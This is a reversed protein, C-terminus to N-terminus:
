ARSKRAKSMKKALYRCANVGGAALIGSVAQRASSVMVRRSVARRVSKAADARSTIPVQNVSNCDWKSELPGLFHLFSLRPPQYVPIGVAKISQQVNLIHNIISSAESVPAVLVGLAALTAKKIKNQDEAFLMRLDGMYSLSCIKAYLDEETFEPPLLLLAASIAARLNVSNSNKIGFKDVLIHVPKQLRGSLYFRQWNLLDQVLDHMRAVGYKIMQKDDLPVFPNFHVGVGVRDAVQTIMKPGLYAM